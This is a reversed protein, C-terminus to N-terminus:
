CSHRLSPCSQSCNTFARTVAEVEVYYTDNAPLTVNYILSDGYDNPSASGDYNTNGGATTPFMSRVIENNSSNVLVLTNSGIDSGPAIRGPGNDTEAELGRSYIEFDVTTGAKGSFKYYDIGALNSGQIRGLVNVLGNGGPILPTANTFDVNTDATETIPDATNPFGMATQAAQNELQIGHAAVDLKLKSYSNFSTTTSIASNFSTVNARMLDNNQVATKKQADTGATAAYTAAPDTHVLGLVHGIEHSVTNALAQAINDVNPPGSFNNGSVVSFGNFASVSLGIQDNFSLNRWDIQSALGLTGANGGAANGLVVLSYTGAPPASPAQSPDGANSIINISMGAFASQVFSTVDAEVIGMQANTLGALGNLGRVANAFSTEAGLTATTPYGAPPANPVFDLWVTGALQAHATQSLTLIVTLAVAHILYARRQNLQM